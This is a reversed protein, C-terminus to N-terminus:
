SLNDLCPFMGPQFMTQVMKSQMRILVSPLLLPAFLHCQCTLAKSPQAVPIHRHPMAVGMASPRFARREIHDNRSSGALM